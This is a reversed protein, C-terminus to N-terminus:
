HSRGGTLISSVVGPKRSWHEAVSSCLSGPAQVCEPRPFQVIWIKKATHVHNIRAMGTGAGTGGPRRRPPSSRGWRSQGRRPTTRSRPPWYSPAITRIKINPGKEIAKCERIQQCFTMFCGNGSFFVLCKKLFLDFSTFPPPSSLRVFFTFFRILAFFPKKWLLRTVSLKCCSQQLSKKKLAFPYIPLHANKLAEHIQAGLPQAPPRRPGERRREARGHRVLRHHGGGGLGGFTSVAIQISGM